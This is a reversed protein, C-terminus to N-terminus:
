ESGLLLLTLLAYATAPAEAGAEKPPKWYLTGEPAVRQANILLRAALPRWAVLLQKPHELRHIRHMSLALAALFLREYDALTGLPTSFLATEVTLRGALQHVGPSEGPIGVAHLAILRAASSRLDEEDASHAETLSFNLLPAIRDKHSPFEERPAELTSTQFAILAYAASIPDTESSLRTKLQDLFPRAAAIEKASADPPWTLAWATLALQRPTLAHPKQKALWAASRSRALGSRSRLPDSGFVMRAFCTTEIEAPNGWSGDPNQRGALWERGRDLANRVEHSLSPDLRSPATKTEATNLPADPRGIALSTILIAAQFVRKM